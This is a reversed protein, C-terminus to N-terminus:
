GSVYICVTSNRLLLYAFVRALATKAGSHGPISYTDRVLRLRGSLQSVFTEPPERGLLDRANEETLIKM